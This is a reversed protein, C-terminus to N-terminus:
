DHLDHLHCLVQEPWFRSLGSVVYRGAFRVVIRLAVILIAPAEVIKGANKLSM